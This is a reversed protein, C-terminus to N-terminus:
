PILLSLIVVPGLQPGRDLAQGVVHWAGNVYRCLFVTKGVFLGQQRLRYRTLSKIELNPTRAGRLAKKKAKPILIM